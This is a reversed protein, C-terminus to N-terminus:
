QIFGVTIFLHKWKEMNRDVSTNYIKKIKVMGPPILFYKM